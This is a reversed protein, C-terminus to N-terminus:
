QRFFGSEQLKRLVGVDLFAGPSASRAKRSRSFRLITEVSKEEPLPVPDFLKAQYEYSLQLLRPDESKTYKEIVKIALDAERRFMVFGEAVARIIAAHIRPNRKIFNETTGVATTLYRLDAAPMAYLERYGLEKAQFLGPPSLIGGQIAGSKLAALVQPLGGVQLIQVDKDPRMGFRGIIYRASVDTLSGFRSVGIIKDMLDSPTRISPAVLLSQGIRNAFAMVIVTDAGALRAEVLPNGAGVTYAINGAVLAQVATPGSPIYVLEVQAGQRAFLEREAAIWLPTTNSSIATFAVRFTEQSGARGGSLFLALLGAVLSLAQGGKTVNSNTAILLRTRIM